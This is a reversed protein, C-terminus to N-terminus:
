CTGMISMLMKAADEEDEVRGGGSSGGMGVGIEDYDDENDSSITFTADGHRSLMHNKLNGAQASRYNCKPVTCVFPKEGTHRRIHRKLNANTTAAYTCGPYECM